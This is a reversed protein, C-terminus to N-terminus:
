EKIFMQKRVEKSDNVVVFYVGGSLDNVDLTISNEGPIFEYEIEKQKIGLLNYLEIKSHNIYNSHYSITLINNTPNPHINIVNEHVWFLNRNIGIADGTTFRLGSGTQTNWKSSDEDNFARIKAFYYQNPKLDDIKICTDEIFKFEYAIEVGPIIDREAMQLHYYTANEVKNWIITPNIEVNDSFNNPYIFFPSVLKDSNEKTVIYRINSWYSTDKDNYSRVRFYYKTNYNMEVEKITDELVRFWHNIESFNSFISSQLEYAEAGVISNWAIIFQYETESTDNQPSCIKPAKLSKTMDSRILYFPNQLFIYEGEILAIQPSASGMWVEPPLDQLLWKEGNNSSFYLKNDGGSAVGIGNDSMSIFDLGFVPPVEENMVIEWSLGGNESKAILDSRQWGIGNPFGGTAWLTMNKTSHINRIGNPITNDSIEWNQGLNVSRYFRNEKGSSFAYLSIATSDLMWLGSCFYNSPYDIKQIAQWALNTYYLNYNISGDYKTTTFAVGHNSDFMDFRSVWENEKFHLFKWSKGFDFSYIIMGKVPKQSNDVENAALFISNDDLIEITRIKVRSETSYICVWTEGIDNSLLLSDKTGGSKARIVFKNKNASIINGNNVNYSTGNNYEM